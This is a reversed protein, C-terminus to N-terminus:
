RYEITEKWRGKTYSYSRFKVYDSKSKANPNLPFRQSLRKNKSEKMLIDYKKVTEEMKRMDKKLNKVQETLTKSYKRFYKQVLGEINKDRNFNVM